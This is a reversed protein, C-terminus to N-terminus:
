NSMSTSANTKWGTFRSWIGNTAEQWRVKRYVEENGIETNVLTRVNTITVVGSSYDLHRSFCSTGLHEDGNLWDDDEWREAHHEGIPRQLLPRIKYDVLKTGSCNFGAFVPKLPIVSCAYSTTAAQAPAALAFPAAAM